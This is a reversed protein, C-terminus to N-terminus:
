CRAESHLLWSHILCWAKHHLSMPIDQGQEPVELWTEKMEEGSSSTQWKNM